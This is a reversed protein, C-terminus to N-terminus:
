IALSVCTLVPFTACNSYLTDNSSELYKINILSKIEVIHDLPSKESPKLELRYHALDDYFGKLASISKDSFIDGDKAKYVLYIYEDGGFVTKFQDYEKKIPDDEKFLSDISDDMIIRDGGIGLFVTILVILSVVFLKKKRLKDPLNEFFISLKEMTGRKEM